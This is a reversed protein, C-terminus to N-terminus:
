MELSEQDPNAMERATPAKRPAGKPHPSPENPPSGAKSVMAPDRKM